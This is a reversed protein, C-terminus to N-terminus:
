RQAAPYIREYMAKMKERLESLSAASINEQGAPVNIALNLNASSAFMRNSFDITQAKASQVQAQAGAWVNGGSAQTALSGAISSTLLRTAEAKNEARQMNQVDDRFDGQTYYKGLTATQHELFQIEAFRFKKILERRDSTSFDNADWRIALPKDFYGAYSRYGSSLTPAHGFLNVADGIVNIFPAFARPGVDYTDPEFDSSKTAFEYKIFRGDQLPRQESALGIWPSAVAPSSVPGEMNILEVLNAGFGLEAGKGDRSVGNDMLPVLASHVLLAGHTDPTVTPDTRISILPFVVGGVLLTTADSHQWFTRQYKFFDVVLEVPPADFFPAALALGREDTELTMPQVIVHVAGLSDLIQQAFLYAYVNSKIVGTLLSNRVNAVGKTFVVEPGVFLDKALYKETLLAESAPDITSVYRVMVTPWDKSDNSAVLMKPADGVFAASYTTSCGTLVLTACVILVSLFMTCVARFLQNSM